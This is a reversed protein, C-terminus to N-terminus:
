KQMYSNIVLYYIESSTLVGNQEFDALIGKITM